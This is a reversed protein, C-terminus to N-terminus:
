LEWEITLDNGDMVAIHAWTVSRAGIVKIADTLTGTVSGIYDDAGGRPYYNDGGFLFYTTRLNNDQTNTEEHNRTATNELADLTDVPLSRVAQRLARERPVFETTEMPTDRDYVECFAVAARAVDVCAALRDRDPEAARRRDYENAPQQRRLRMADNAVHAAYAKWVDVETRLNDIVENAAAHEDKWYESRKRAMDREGDLTAILSCAREVISMEPEYVYEGDYRRVTLVLQEQQGRTEVTHEAHIVLTRVALTWTEVTHVEDAASKMIRVAEELTM